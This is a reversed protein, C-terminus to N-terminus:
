EEDSSDEDSSSFLEPNLLRYLGVDDGKAEVYKWVKGMMESHQLTINVYKEQYERRKGQEEMYRIHELDMEKKYSRCMDQLMEKEAKLKENEKSLKSYEEAQEEIKEKLEEIYKVLDATECMRLQETTYSNM